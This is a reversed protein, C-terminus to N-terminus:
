AIKKEDVNAIQKEVAEKVVKKKEKKKHSAKAIDTAFLKSAKKLNNEFKKDKIGKKFDTLAVVLRDYVLQRAEKKTVKKGKVAKASM